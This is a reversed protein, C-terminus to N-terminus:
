ENQFVGINKIYVDDLARINRWRIHEPYVEEGCVTCYAKEGFFCIEKGGKIDSLVEEVVKVSQLKQCNMCLVKEMTFKTM